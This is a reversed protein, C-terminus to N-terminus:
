QECLKFHNSKNIRFIKAIENNNANTTNKIKQILLKLMRKDKLNINDLNYNEKFENIVSSINSELNLKRDVDTDIFDLIENEQTNIRNQIESLLKELNYNNASSFKYDKADKVIGAKVPNNHIYHICNYFYKENYIYESEFRNRFVVGVRNELKNYLLAFKMNVMKMFESMDNTNKIELLLHAHNIMICYAIIKISKKSAYDFLLKIYMKKYKDSYFIKEKNIGQSMIHYYNGSFINRAERPM